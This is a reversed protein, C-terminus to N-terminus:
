ISVTPAVKMPVGRFDLNANHCLLFPFIASNHLLFTFAAIKFWCKLLYVFFLKTIRRLSIFNYSQTVDHRISQQHAFKTALQKLYTM